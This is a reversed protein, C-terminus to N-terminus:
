FITKTSDVNCATNAVEQPFSIFRAQTFNSVMKSLINKRGLTFKIFKVINKNSQVPCDRNDM